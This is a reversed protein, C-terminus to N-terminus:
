GRALSSTSECELHLLNIFVEAPTHFALCQRPTHNYRRACALIHEPTLKNLDTKRPLQRRLRGIANEIGGKQWPSHADCFYTQIRHQERLRYHAAFETGNDFTITRRLGEPLDALWAKLTDAVPEAQKTHQRNLVILRSTREEAALLQHGYASFAMLDAEWHGAERRDLVADPRLDISVRDKIHLAPSGGRHGRFGRRFKARPLYHRWSYDTTRRIQAYIFRYISEYSIVKHGQDLAFRGSIQAPSWGQKLRDLVQEQLEPRRELKSGRWKRARAQDAAYTPKYLEPRSANRKLERSVSSPSRDLGAAIKRMTEGASLRRSIECREELSLQRYCRGM